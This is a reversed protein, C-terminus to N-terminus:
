LVSGYSDDKRPLPLTETEPSTKTTSSDRMQCYERRLFVGIIVTTLLAYIYLFAASSPSKKLFNTRRVSRGLSSRNTSSHPPLQREGLGVGGGFSTTEADCGINVTFTHKRASNEGADKLFGDNITVSYEGAEAHAYSNGYNLPVAMIWSHTSEDNRCYFKYHMVLSEVSIPGVNSDVNSECNKTRSVAYAMDSSKLQPCTIEEDFDVIVADGYVKRSIPFPAKVDVVLNLNEETVSGKIDPTAFSDYGSCFVKARIEWAGDKLGNLFYQRELNWDLTCGEGRSSVCQVDPETDVSNEWVFTHDGEMKWANIWEGEGPKRWQIRIFEVNPHVLHDYRGGEAGLSRTWLNLPDPNLVTLKMNNATKKSAVHNLYTNVTTPDWTVKPCEREWKFHSLDGFTEASIPDRYLWDNALSWECDSVIKMGINKYEFSFPGRSISLSLKSNRLTTGDSQTSPVDHLVYPSGFPVMSETNVTNIGFVLGLMNGGAEKSYSARSTLLLGYRGDERYPSENTITVDFLADAGPPIHMNNVGPAHAVEIGIGSERWMTNKEGPCRSAGGITNFIPTGWRSDTSIQIVFKDLPDPDGLAYMTEIDGHKAWASAHEVSSTKGYGQHFHSGGEVFLITFENDFNNTVMAESEISWSYGDSDINSSVSSTFELTTGGGAFTILESTSGSNLWDEDVNDPPIAGKGSCKKFTFMNTYFGKVTYTDTNGPGSAGGAQRCSWWSKNSITQTAPNGGSGSNGVWRCYDHCVGCGSADYWGRYIDDYGDDRAKNVVKCRDNENKLNGPTSKLTLDNM